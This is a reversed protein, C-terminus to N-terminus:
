RVVGARRLAFLIVDEWPTSTEMAVYHVDRGLCYSAMESRWERLRRAYLDRMAGDVTVDQGAGTESDILRIDGVVAPEVEDPSLLHLITVEHGRGQLANLGDRYGGPSLMDGILLVLGVRGGRVAYDALAANLDTTGDTQLHEMWTLMSLTQGRGRVPGWRDIVRAGALLSVSVRDGTTLGIHALAAALRVGYRFKHVDVVSAARGVGGMGDLPWNMSESADLLVHVTLDEEEELLKIFPKELRAYVNWDLRRLDDGRTYDRYDAFEISTGKKVSRREGKVAGARVKHAILRLQELKRLTTEDFLREPPM